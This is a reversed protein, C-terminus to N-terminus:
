NNLFLLVRNNGLEIEYFKVIYNSKISKNSVWVICNTFKVQFLYGLQNYIAQYGMLNERFDTYKLLIYDRFGM